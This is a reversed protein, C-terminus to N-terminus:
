KRIINHFIDVAILIFIRINAVKLIFLFEIRVAQTYTTLGYNSNKFLVAGYIRCCKENEIITCQFTMMITKYNLKLYWIWWCKEITLYLWWFNQIPVYIFMIKNNNYGREGFPSPTYQKVETRGETRGDTWSIKRRLKRLLQQHWCDPIQDCAEYLYWM